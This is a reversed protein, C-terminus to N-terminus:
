FMKPLWTDNISYKESNKSFYNPEDQYINILSDFQNIIICIINKM